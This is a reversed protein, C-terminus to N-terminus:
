HKRASWQELAAEEDAKEELKAHHEHFGAEHKRVLKAEAELQALQERLKQEEAREQALERRASSENELLVTAQVRAGREFDDLRRLDAGSAGMAELREREARTAAMARAEHERRARERELLRVRATECRAIQAALSRTVTEAREDRLKRLAELPYPQRPM